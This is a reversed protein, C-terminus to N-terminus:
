LRVDGVVPAAEKSDIGVVDQLDPLPQSHAYETLAGM